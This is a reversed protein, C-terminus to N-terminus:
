VKKGGSRRRKIRLLSYISITVGALFGFMHGQKLRGAFYLDLFCQICISLAVAVCIIKSQQWVKYFYILLFGALSCLAQSAGSSVLDPNFIVSAFQGVIGGVFYVVLIHVVGFKREIYSGILFIFIVNGLMHLFNVHTFQSVLIRWYGTQSLLQGNVAGYRLLLRSGQTEHWAQGSHVAIFTWYLLIGLCIILTAYPKSNQMSDIQHASTTM